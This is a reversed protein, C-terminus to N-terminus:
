DVLAIKCQMSVALCSLTPSSSSAFASVWSQDIFTELGLSSSLSWIRLSNPHSPIHFVSIVMGTVKVTSTKPLLPCVESSHSVFAISCPAPRISMSPSCLESGHSNTLHSVSPERCVVSECNLPLTFGSSILLSFVNM